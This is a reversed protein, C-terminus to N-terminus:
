AHRGAGTALKMSVSSHWRDGGGDCQTSVSSWSRINRKKGLQKPRLDSREMEEGGCAGCTQLLSWHTQEARRCPSADGGGLMYAICGLLLPPDSRTTHDTTHPSFEGQWWRYGNTKHCPTMSSKRILGWVSCTGHVHVDQHIVETIFYRILTVSYHTCHIYTWWRYAIVMCLTCQNLKMETMCFQFEPLTSAVCKLLKVKFLHEEVSITFGPLLLM